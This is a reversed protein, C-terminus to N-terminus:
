PFDHHLHVTILRSRIMKGPFSSLVFTILLASFVCLVDGIVRCTEGQHRPMKQDKKLISKATQLSSALFCALLLYFVTASRVAHSYLFDFCGIKWSLGM